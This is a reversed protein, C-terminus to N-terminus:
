RIENLVKIIVNHMKKKEKRKNFQDNDSCIFIVIKLSNQCFTDNALSQNNKPIYKAKIKILSQKTLMKPIKETTKVAM